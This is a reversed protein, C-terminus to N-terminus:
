TWNYSVLASRVSYRLSRELEAGQLRTHCQGAVDEFSLRLDEDRM